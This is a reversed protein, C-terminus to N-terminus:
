WAGDAAPARGAKRLKKLMTASMGLKEAKAGWAAALQPLAARPDEQAIAEWAAELDRASRAAEIEDLYRQVLADVTQPEPVPPIIWRAYPDSPEATRVHSVEDALADAVLARLLDVPDLAADCADDWPLMPMLGLSERLAAQEPASSRLGFAKAVRRIGEDSQLDEVILAVRRRREALRAEALGREGRPRGGDAAGEPTAAREAAKARRAEAVAAQNYLELVNGRETRTIAVPSLGTGRADYELAYPSGYVLAGWPNLKAEAATLVRLKRKKADKKAIEWRHEVKADWCAPDLCAAEGTPSSAFLERQRDSRKPCVACSGGPYSEDDMAFVASTLRRLACRVTQEFAAYSGLEREEHDRALEEQTSAALRAVLEAHRLPCTGSAVRERWAPVLALLRRRGEVWRLDRGLKDAVQDARRGAVLLAEISEAEEIPSVDTRASNEALALELAEDDLLARVRVPIEALGARQSALWRRQGAIIEHTIEGEPQTLLRVTIPQDVGRARISAALEDLQAPAITKRPNGAWVRLADTPLTTYESV